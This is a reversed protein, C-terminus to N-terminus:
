GRFHLFKQIIGIVLFVVSFALGAVALIGLFTLGSEANYFIPMLDNLAESIWTGVSSFVDLVSQLISGQM